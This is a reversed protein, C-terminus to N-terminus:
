GYRYSRRDKMSYYLVVRECNGAIPGAYRALESGGTPPLGLSCKAVEGMHWIKATAKRTLEDILAATEAMEEM